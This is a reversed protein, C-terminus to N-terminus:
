PGDSTPVASGPRSESGFAANFVVQQIRRIVTDLIELAQERVSADDAGDPLNGRQLALGAHMVDGVLLDLTELPIQLSRRTGFAVEERILPSPAHEDSILTMEAM